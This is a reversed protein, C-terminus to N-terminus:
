NFHISFLVKVPHKKFGFKIINYIPRTNLRKILLLNNNNHYYHHNFIVNNNNDDDNNNNGQM